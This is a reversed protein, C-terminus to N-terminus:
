GAVSKLAYSQLGTSTTSALVFTTLCAINNSGDKDLYRLGDITNTIDREVFSTVALTPIIVLPYYLNLALTGTGTMSASLILTEVSRVGYDGAALTVIPGQGVPTLRQVIGSVLLAQAATTQAATGASNTYSNVTLNSATTSLAATIDFTMMVGVGLAASGTPDYTRTQATSNITQSVISTTSINAAAVLLDILMVINTGTLFNVGLSLLYKEYSAGPSELRLAGASSQNHAAGGPINTYTGASPLGASRYTTSWNNAVTTVSSKVYLRDDGRGAARAAIIDNRSAIALEMGGENLLDAETIGVRRLEKKLEIPYEFLADKFYSASGRPVANVPLKWEATHKQMPQKRRGAEVLGYGPIADGVYGIKPILVPISFHRGMEEPPLWPRVKRMEEAVQGMLVRAWAPLKAKGPILIQHSATQM